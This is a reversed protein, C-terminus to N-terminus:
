CQSYPLKNESTVRSYYRLKIGSPLKEPGSHASDLWLLLHFSVGRDCHALSLYLIRQQLPVMKTSQCSERVLSIESHLVYENFM